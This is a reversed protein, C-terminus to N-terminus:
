DARELEKNEVSMIPFFIFFFLNETNNM